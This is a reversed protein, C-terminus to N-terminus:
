TEISRLLDTLKVNKGGMKAHVKEEYTGKAIVSITETEETQGTRSIRANGQLWWALDPTPSPWITAKGRVMTISHAASKPHMLATRFMGAGYMQINDDRQKDTTDGDIVMYTLKRKTLEEILLDRQHKWLFFVVTNKRAEILDAVLEYRSRDIVHYEKNEDYVAGSAIQLLKTHLSAANVATVQGTKLQLIAEAEMERYAAMHARSLELEIPPRIWNKPVNKLKNRISIDKLLEAVQEEIGDRDVWKVMNPQPGVQEPTCAAARFAYFSPGLRKGDDVLFAQHWADLIGNPTLTGNMLCRYKFHRRIKAMAKSRQSTHHKFAEGEDIVLYDFKKFFSDPQKALWKAADHNTVYMDAKAKFAEERNSANAVSVKMWPYFKRMDAEWTVRLSSRPGIVLCCGGGKVRRRAFVEGRSRTKGTGPDSLDMLRGTSLELEVSKVQDPFLPPVKRVLSM